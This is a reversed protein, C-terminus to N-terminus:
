VTTCYVTGPNKMVVTPLAPCIKTYREGCAQGVDALLKGLMEEVLCFFHKGEGTNYTSVINIFGHSSWQQSLAKWYARLCSVIMVFVSDKNHFTPSNKARAFAQWSFHPGKKLRMRKIHPTYFSHSYCSYTNLLLMYRVHHSETFHLCVFVCLSM